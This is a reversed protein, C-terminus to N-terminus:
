HVNSSKEWSHETSKKSEKGLDRDPRTNDEQRLLPDLIGMEAGDLLVKFRRERWCFEM